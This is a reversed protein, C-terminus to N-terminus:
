RSMRTVAFYFFALPVCPSIKEGLRMTPPFHQLSRLSPHVGRYETPDGNVSQELLHLDLLLRLADPRHEPQRESYSHCRHNPSRLYNDPVRCRFDNDGPGIRELCRPFTCTGHGLKTAVDFRIEYPHESIDNFIGEDFYQEIETDRVIDEAYARIINELAAKGQETWPKETTCIMMHLHPLNGLARKSGSDQYESKVFLHEVNCFLRPNNSTEIHQLFLRQIEMWNRLILGSAAQDVQNEIEEHDRFDLDYFGKYHKKWEGNNVWARIERLGPQQKQNCTMSFFLTFPNAREAAALEQIITRSEIMDSLFGDKRNRVALGTATNSSEYGRHMVLRSDQNNLAANALADFMFTKYRWDSGSLSSYMTFRTRAHEKLNAYGNGSVSGQQGLLASPIAGLISYKDKAASFFISPFLMGEPYLLPITTSSTSVLKQLFFQQKKSGRLEHQRRVLLTGCQNLVIHCPVQYNSERYDAHRIELAEVGSVTTPFDETNLDLPIEEGEHLDDIPMEPNVVVNNEIDAICHEHMPNALHEYNNQLETTTGHDTFAEFVAPALVEGSTSSPHQPINHRGNQSEKEDMCHKCIWTCCSPIPCRFAVKRACPEHGEQVQYCKYQDLTGKLAPTVILPIGHTECFVANQGGIYTL